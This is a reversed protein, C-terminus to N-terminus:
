KAYSAEGKGFSWNEKSVEVLNILVDEPRIGPAEKLNAAIKAYLARKQELSRGLNLTIQVAIFGSTRAIGLYGPDFVLGDSPHETFIQFRDDPPVNITEVMARHIGDGVAARYEGSQGKPVSVRVLPM